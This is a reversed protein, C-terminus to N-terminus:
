CEGGAHVQAQSVVSTPAVAHVQVAHVQVAHCHWAHQSAKFAAHYIYPRHPSQVRALELAIMEKDSISAKDRARAGAAPGGGRGGKACGGGQM